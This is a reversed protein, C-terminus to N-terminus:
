AHNIHRRGFEIRYCFVLASINTKVPFDRGVVYQGLDIHEFAFFDFLGGVVVYNCGQRGGVHFVTGVCSGEHCEFSLVACPSYLTRLESNFVTRYCHLVSRNTLHKDIRVTGIVEASDCAVHFDSERGLGVAGAQHFHSSNINVIIM